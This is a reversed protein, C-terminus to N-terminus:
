GSSLLGCKMLVQILHLLTKRMVREIIIWVSLLDPKLFYIVSGDCFWCRYHVDFDFLLPHFLCPSVGWANADRLHMNMDLYAPKINTLESINQFKRLECFLQTYTVVSLSYHTYDYYTCLLNELLRWGQFQIIFNDFTGKEHFWANYQCLKLM